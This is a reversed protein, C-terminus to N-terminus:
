DKGWFLKEKKLETQLQKKSTMKQAVFLILISIVYAIILQILVDLILYGASITSQMRGFTNIIKTAYTFPFGYRVHGGRGSLQTDSFTYTFFMFLIMFVILTMIIILRCYFIKKHM